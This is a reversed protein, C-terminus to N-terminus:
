NVEGHKGQQSLRREWNPHASGDFQGTNSNHLRSGYGWGTANVERSNSTLAFSIVDSNRLHLLVLLVSAPTWELPFGGELSMPYAFLQASYKARYTKTITQFVSRKTNCIFSSKQLSNLIEPYSYKGSVSPTISTAGQIHWLSIVREWVVVRGKKAVCPKM